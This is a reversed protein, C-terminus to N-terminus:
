ELLLGLRDPMISLVRVIAVLAIFIGLLIHGVGGLKLWMKMTDETFIEAVVWFEQSLAFLLLVYGVLALVGAIALMRKVTQITSQIDHHTSREFTNGATSSAMGM